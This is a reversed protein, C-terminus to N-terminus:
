ASTMAVGHQVHDGELTSTSPHSRYAGVTQVGLHRFPHSGAGCALRTMGFLPIMKRDAAGQGRTHFPVSTGQHPGPQTM